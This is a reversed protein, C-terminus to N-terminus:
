GILKLAGWFFLTVQQSYGSISHSIKAILYNMSTGKVYYMM